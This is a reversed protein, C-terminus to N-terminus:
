RVFRILYIVHSFGYAAGCRQVKVRHPCAPYCSPTRQVRQANIIPDPPSAIQGVIQEGCLWQATDSPAPRRRSWVDSNTNENYLVTAFCHGRTEAVSLKCQ